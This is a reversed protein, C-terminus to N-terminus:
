PLFHLFIVLSSFLWTCDKVFLNDPKAMFSRATRSTKFSVPRSLFFGTFQVVCSRRSNQLFILILLLGRTMAAFLASKCDALSIMLSIFFLLCSTIGQEASASDKSLRAAFRPM